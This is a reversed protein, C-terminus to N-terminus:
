KKIAITLIFLSKDEDFGKGDMNLFEVVEFGNKNLINSLQNSSYIQLDWLEDIIQPKELGNQIYTKQNMTMIAKKENLKNKNFRVYKTGEVEKFIDIFEHPIFNNKM